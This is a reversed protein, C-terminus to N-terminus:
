LSVILSIALLLDFFSLWSVTFPFHWDLIVCGAFFIYTHTYVCVCIDGDFLYAIVSFLVLYSCHNNVDCFYLFGFM